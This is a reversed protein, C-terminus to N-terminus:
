PHQALQIGYGNKRVLNKKIKLDVSKAVLEWDSFYDSSAISDPMNIIYVDIEFFDGPNFIGLSNISITRSEHDISV